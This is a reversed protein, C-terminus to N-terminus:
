LIETIDHCDSKTTLILTLNNLAVKLLIETKNTSSVSTGPSFCQCVNDCLITDLITKGSCPEFECNTTIPVSQVLLQLDLYWVIEVKGTGTISAIVLM